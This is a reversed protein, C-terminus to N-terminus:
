TAGVRGSDRPSSPTDNDRSQLPHVRFSPFSPFSDSVRSTIEADRAASQLAHMKHALTSSSAAVPVTVEGIDAQNWDIRYHDLPGLKKGAHTDPIYGIHDLAQDPDPQAVGLGQHPVIQTDSSITLTGAKKQGTEAKKLPVFAKKQRSPASLEKGTPQEKGANRKSGSQAPASAQRPQPPPASSAVPPQQTPPATPQQTPPPTATPAAPQAAPPAQPALPTPDQQQPPDEQQQQQVPASEARESAETNEMEVGINSAGLDYDERKPIPMEPMDMSQADPIDQETAM